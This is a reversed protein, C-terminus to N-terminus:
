ATPGAPARNPFGWSWAPWPCLSAPCGTWRPCATGKMSAARSAAYGPLPKNMPCPGCPFAYRATIRRRWICSWIMTGRICCPWPRPWSTVSVADPMLGCKHRRPGSRGPIRPRVPRRFFPMHRAGTMGGYDPPVPGDLNSLLAQLASLTREGHEQLSQWAAHSHTDSDLGTPVPAPAAPIVPAVRATAASDWGSHPAYGGATDRLLVVMGPRLRHVEQWHGELSDWVWAHQRKDKLFARMEGLPVPCLEERAPGPMDGGPMDGPWTRWFAQVDTDDSERIFRSVDIDAGALDPTTDFLDFLDPARLVAHADDRDESRPLLAPAADELGSLLARARALAAPTYPRAAQETKCPADLWFIRADELEGARNCRGFRQVLSSWPALDTFLTAASIDVGAEVVQTTVIIRGAEGPVSLAEELVRGRDAPRFRSHLLCLPPAKKDKKLTAFLDVADKVRNRIVLTLTGPRHEKLISAALDKTKRIALPQLRKAAHIRRIVQPFTTDVADLTRMQPAPCRAAFDVSALWRPHLTASCWLSRCPLAVGFRQRFAELQTSTPLGAGMLQVEDFVWFADNHLLAFDLPWRFRSMAYGRNLARSLLQDQTGILIADDEPRLDWDRAVDGGMLVHVAPARSLLGAGALTATWQRALRATQEVLVRMPLCWVLRRPTHADQRQRKHLWALLIAATKGLGTPIELVDPWPEDALRQQYPYPSVGLAASYWDSLSPVRSEEQQFIARAPRGALVPFM